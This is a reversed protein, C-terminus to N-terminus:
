ELTRTRSHSKENQKEFSLQLDPIYENFEQTMYQARKYGSELTTNESYLLEFAALLLVKKRLEIDMQHQKIVTSLDSYDLNNNPKNQLHNLLQELTFNQKPAILFPNNDIRIIKGTKPDARVFFQHPLHTAHKLSIGILTLYSFTIQDNYQKEICLNKCRYPCELITLFESPLRYLLQNIDMAPAISSITDFRSNKDSNFDNEPYKIEYWCSLFELLKQLDKTHYSCSYGQEKEEKLWLQFEKKKELLEYQKNFISYNKEKTTM